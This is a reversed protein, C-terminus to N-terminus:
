APPKEEKEKPTALQNGKRHEVDCIHIEHTLRYRLVDLLRAKTLVLQFAQTGDLPLVVGFITEAVVVINCGSLAKNAENALIGTNEHTEKEM